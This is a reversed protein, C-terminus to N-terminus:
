RGEASVVEGGSRTGVARWGARSTTDKFFSVHGDVALANAGGRHGSAATWSSRDPDNRNSCSPKGVGQNHNYLTNEMGTQLWFCWKGNGLAPAVGVSADCEDAFRDLDDGGPIVLINGLPNASVGSGAGRVWEAIAITNSTGDAFQAVAISASPRDGVFAGAAEPGAGGMGYGVNGAYSTTGLTWSPEPDSPCSLVALRAMGATYHADALGNGYDNAIGISSQFNLSNALPVQDLDGLLYAYLSYGNWSRGPPLMGVSTAYNNLAIGVQRLNNTCAARRSSERAALVAPLLLALLLAIIAVTVLLEILTVGRDSTHRTTM